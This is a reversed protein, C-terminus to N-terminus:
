HCAYPLFCCDAYFYYLIVPTATARPIYQYVSNMVHFRKATANYTGQGGFIFIGSSYISTSSNYSEAVFRFLGAPISEEETWDTGNYREVV